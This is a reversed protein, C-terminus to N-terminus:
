SDTRTTSLSIHTTTTPAQRCHLQEGAQVSSSCTMNSQPAFNNPRSSVNQFLLLRPPPCIVTLQSVEKELSRPSVRSCALQSGDRRRQPGVLSGGRFGGDDCGYCGSFTTEPHETELSRGSHVGVGIVVDIWRGGDRVPLHDLRILQPRPNIIRIIIDVVLHPIPIMGLQDHISARLRM